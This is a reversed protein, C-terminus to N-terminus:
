SSLRLLHNDFRRGHRAIPQLGGQLLRALWGEGSTLLFGGPMADVACVDRLESSALFRGDHRWLTAVGGRPSTVAFSRGDVSVAVSGCYNKMRQQAGQPASVLTLPAGLRTLGILPPQDLPSGEWQAVVVVSGDPTVDLHRLSLRHLDAPPAVTHRLRGDSASVFAVSPAMEALNLKARPAAPHTLIGGNAVVLTRGDPHRCIEHPGIGHSSFEGIRRFRETADYVGIVGREGEYDNETAYLLTGDAAFCGHGYFHRGPAASIDALLRGTVGDFVVAFDGPRRAFVAVRSGTPDAAMGHGRAPLDHVQLSDGTQSVLGAQFRGEPTQWTTAFSPVASPDVSLDAGARVSAPRVLGAALLSLLARRSLAM